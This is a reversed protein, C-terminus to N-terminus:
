SNRHYSGYKKEQIAADTTSVAASLALTILIDKALPTFVNKILLLSVRILAGLVNTLLGGEQSTIEKTTGKM